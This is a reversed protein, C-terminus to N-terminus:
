LSIAAVGAVMLGGALLHRGLHREGFLMARLARWVAPQQTQRRDHLGSRGAGAGHFPHGGDRAMFGAVILLPWIRRGISACASPHSIGVFLLTLAGLVVFYFAGFQRAADM